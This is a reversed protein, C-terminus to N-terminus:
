RGQFMEKISRDERNQIKKDKMGQKQTKIDERFKQMSKFRQLQKEDINYEKKLADLSKIIENKGHFSPYATEIKIGLKSFPDDSLGFCINIVESKVLNFDKDIGYGIFEKADYVLEKSFPKTGDVFEKAIKNELEWLASYVVEKFDDHNMSNDYGAAFIGQVQGTKLALDVMDRETMDLHRQKIHDGSTLPGGSASMESLLEDVIDVGLGDLLDCFYNEYNQYMEHKFHALYINEIKM